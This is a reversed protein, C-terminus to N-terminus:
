RGTILPNLTPDLGTQYGVMMNTARDFTVFLMDYSEAAGLYRYEWVVKDTADPFTLKKAPPGFECRVQGASWQGQDLKTFAQANLIQEFAGVTKNAGVVTAWAQEGSPQESWIMRTGGSPDPCSVNPNGFRELVEPLPTGPSVTQVSACGTLALAALVGTIRFSATKSM